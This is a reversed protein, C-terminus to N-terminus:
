LEGADPFGKHNLNTPKQQLRKDLHHLSHCISSDFHDFTWIKALPKTNSRLRQLTSCLM